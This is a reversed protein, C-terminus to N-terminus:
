LPTFTSILKKFVPLHKNFASVPSYYHLVFFGEKAPLVYIKERVRVSEESTSEPHLFEKVEREFSFAKIGNLATEKVPTYKRTPTETRGIADKSNREIFEDYTKFDGNDKAYYAAYIMVPASEVRPGLLELEYIKNKAESAKDRGAEWGAPVQCTFYDMNYPEHKVAANQGANGSAKPKVPASEAAKRGDSPEAVTGPANDDAYSCGSLLFFALLLKLM